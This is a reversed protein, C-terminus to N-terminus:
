RQYITGWNDTDRGDFLMVPIVADFYLSTYFVETEHERWWAEIGYFGKSLM